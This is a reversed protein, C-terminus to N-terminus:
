QDVSAALEVATSGPEDRGNMYADFDAASMPRSFLFGQYRYCGISGLFDRQGETEVGEAIVELGLNQGLSVVTGAIAADNPNTLLDRVFARDIKLQNLPLRKLYSLSSFGTGFDDLSLQVGSDKLATMKTVIDEIDNVLMSETLEIKLLQPNVGCREVISSVQAVFDPQHFQRASVNVALQLSATSPDKAWLSLQMCAQKLVWDGLPLILGTQEAMPIFDGPPVMGHRPHKWRVLAEAGIVQGQADVQPQYHLVFQGEILATRFDAELANRATVDIQMVMLAMYLTVMAFLNNGWANMARVDAPLVFDTQFGFSSVDLVAYAVMFAGTVGHRLWPHQGRFFLFACAALAPLLHHTSRGVGPSPVDMFLCIGILTFFLTVLLLMGAAHAHKRHTLVVGLTGTFILAIEMSVALWQERMAFLIAWGVGAAILLGCGMLVMMEIRRQHKASPSRWATSSAQTAQGSPPM